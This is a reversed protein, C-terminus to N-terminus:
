RCEKKLWTIPVENQKWFVKSDGNELVKESYDESCKNIL